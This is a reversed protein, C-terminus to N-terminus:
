YTFRFFPTCLDASPLLNVKMTWFKPAPSLVFAALIPLEYYAAPAEKLLSSKFLAMASRVSFINICFLLPSLDTFFPPVSPIVAEQPPM